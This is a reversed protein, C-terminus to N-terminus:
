KKANEPVLYSTVSRVRPMRRIKNVAGDIETQNRALGTLVVHGGWVDVDVRRTNIDETFLLRLDIEAEIAADEVTAATGEPFWHPTVHVVGRTKRATEEATARFQEDAEGVLFVHGQFCHVNVDNAKSANRDLLASAISTKIGADDYRSAEKGDQAPQVGLFACAQCFLAASLLLFLLRARAPKFSIKM